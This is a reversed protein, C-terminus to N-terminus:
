VTANQRDRANQRMENRIMDYLAGWNAECAIHEQRLGGYDKFQQFAMVVTVAFGVIIAVIKLM